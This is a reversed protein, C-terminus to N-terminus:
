HMTGTVEDSQQAPAATLEIKLGLTEADPGAITLLRMAVWRPVVAASRKNPAPLWVVPYPDADIDANEPLVEFMDTALKKRAKSFAGALVTVTVLEDQPNGKDGPQQQTLISATKDQAKALEEKTATRREREKGDRADTIVLENGKTITLVTQITVKRKGTHIQEAFVALEDGLSLRREENKRISERVAKLAQEANKEDRLLDKQQGQAERLNQSTIFMEDNAAAIDAATMEVEAAAEETGIIFGGPEAPERLFPLPQAPPQTAGNAENTEDQPQPEQSGKKRGM